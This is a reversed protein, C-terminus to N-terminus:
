KVRRWVEEIRVGDEMGKHLWDGNAHQWSFVYDKGLMRAESAYDVSEVYKNGDIRYKGGGASIFKGDKAKTIFTFRNKSLIKLSKIKGGSIEDILEGNPKSYKASVLEWAGALPDAAFAFHSVSLILAALGTRITKM